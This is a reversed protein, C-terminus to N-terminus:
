KAAGEIHEVAVFKGNQVRYPVNAKIGDEGVYGIAIRYRRGDHWKISLTSYDGGTLTSRDGGTLTSYDGGTLTSGYGGALTSYDGGTLTSGGGGTLTSRDGGTLTSDYGGTLTSRDGGTLTSGYGGALTSDDGGTLTSGDGGTLTSGGGGTLTSRDGGTLTSGDGGTLTSGYGGALTSDDGGTLTSYDGGTLTSGGGGTLTSGYWPGAAGRGVLFSSLSERTGCHVVVCRRCKAKQTLEGEGTRLDAPDIEVALWKADPENGYWVGPDNHGPLLIHLGGGCKFDDRWDPAEVPGSEPWRFGDKSTMDAKCTRIALVTTV